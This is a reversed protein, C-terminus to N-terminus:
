VIGIMFVRSWIEMTNNNTININAGSPSCLLPKDPTGGTGVSVMAHAMYITSLGAPNAYNAATNAPLTVYMWAFVLGGPLKQYGNNGLTSSFSGGAGATLPGATTFSVPVYVNGSADIRLRLGAVTDWVAFGGVGAGSGGSGSTLLYGKGGSGTNQLTIQADNGASSVSAAGANITLANLTGDTGISAREVNNVIFRLRHNSISGIYNGNIADSGVVTSAAGVIARLNGFTANGAGDDLITNPTRISGDGQFSLFQQYTADVKRILDISATDHTTGNAIRRARTILSLGNSVTASQESIELTNGAVTGLAGLAIRLKDGFTKTGSVTQATTLDVFNKTTSGTGGSGIPLPATLTLGAFTPSNTANVSQGLRGSVTELTIAPATLASSKGTVGKLLTFLSSILPTLQGTFSPTVSDTATRSGIVSDSIAGPTSVDLAKEQLEKLAEYTRNQQWNWWDAPPHDNELWGETKKSDPPEVGTANWKPLEKNFAM